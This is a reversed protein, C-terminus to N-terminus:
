KKAEVKELTMHEDVAPVLSKIFANRLLTAITPWLHVDTKGLTGSIPIKTALVDHPQNKFATTLTGVIAKWFIELVDKRKDEGWNFVKLNKFFVKCYGDYDGDRSAFSTFLAFDGRAVDFKGYARLFSNLTVLNVNTVQGTLEFTPKPAIPDAHVVLNIGGEGLAKGHAAIGAPLRETSHRSNTFNTALIDLENLYMDVPPTSYLNQFHIQGDTVALRNIKFPVLSELTQGWDTETGTQSQEKTPGSVFNLSPEQMAIKSVVSGHFLESWELSLDLVRTSFFPVPIHGSTKFIHIDHVQYAGRWLHVTVRGINGSYDKSRNLQHNVYSRLAFPMALRMALLFVILGALCYLAQRSRFWGCFKVFGSM